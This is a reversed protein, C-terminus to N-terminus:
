VCRRGDRRVALGGYGEANLTGEGRAVFRPGAYGSRFLGYMQDAWPTGPRVRRACAARPKIESESRSGSGACRSRGPAVEVVVDRPGAGADCVRDGHHGELRGEPIPRGAFCGFNVLRCVRSGTFMSRGPFRGQMASFTRGCRQGVQWPSRTAIRAMPVGSSVAAQTLPQGSVGAWCCASWSCGDLTPRMAQGSGSPTTRRGMPTHPSCFLPVAPGSTRPRFAGARTGRGRRLVTIPTSWPGCGPHYRSRSGGALTSIRPSRRSRLYDQRQSFRGVTPCLGVPVEAPNAAAPARASMSMDLVGAECARRSAVGNRRDDPRPLVALTTSVPSREPGRAVEGTSWPTGPANACSPLRVEWCRSEIGRDPTARRLGLGPPGVGAAPNREVGGAAGQGDAVSWADLGVPKQAPEGHHVHCIVLGGRHPRALDRLCAAPGM